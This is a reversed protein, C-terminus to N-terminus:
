DPGRLKTEALILAGLVGADDGLGPPLIEPAEVYGRLLESLKARIMPLLDRQHM